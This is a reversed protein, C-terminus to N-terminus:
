PTCRATPASSVGPDGELCPIASLYQYIAQMDRDTLSRFRPWPMTQLLPVAHVHDFDTGLRMAQNFESFSMGAPQGSADPTINRSTVGPGFSRGGGMYAAANVLIPGGGFPNGIYSPNTHCDSCGIANVLYSGLYITDSDKKGITLHVPAIQQGIQIKLKEDQTPNQDNAAPSPRPAVMLASAGILFFVAAASVTSRHLHM